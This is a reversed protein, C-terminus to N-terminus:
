GGCNMARVPDIRCLRAYLQTRREAQGPDNGLCKVLLELPYAVAEAEEWDDLRKDQIEDALQDLLPKAISHHGGLILLHALQTRRRFRGRGCKETALKHSILELGDTIRGDRVTRIADDFEDGPMAPPFVEEAALIPPDDDLKFDPLEFSMSEIPTAEAPTSAPTDGFSPLDFSFGGSDEAAPTSTSETSFSGFDFDSPADTSPQEPVSAETAKVAEAASPAPMLGAIWEKTEPSAAPTGDTLMSDALGPLDQVLAKVSSTLAAAASSHQKAELALIAIRHVDLWGRACPLAAATETTELVEDWDRNAFARRLKVRVDTPPAELRDPNVPPALYWLEGWRFARTILYAAPDDADKERLARGIVALQGAIGDETAIGFEMVDAPRLPSRAVAAGAGVSEAADFSFDASFLPEPESATQPPASSLFASFEDVESETKVPEDPGGKKMLLSNLVDAIEELATRTKMFSPATDGFKEDCFEILRELEPQASRVEELSQQYFSKPTAEVASDFDEPTVKGEKIKSARAEQKAENDADAEYGVLRSEKYHHWNLGSSAIPIQKLAEELKTGLWELPAARLELDGDEIEPFLSDWYQDLLTHLFAFCPSIIPFRERRISADVLWVALQLDKSRKAVAEGAMKIVAPYDATKLATKWEGQPAEVDERRAEKIKDTIPDYRLNAGGPSDGSIPTLLDDRLPM